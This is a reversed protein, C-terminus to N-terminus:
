ISMVGLLKKFDDDSFNSLSRYAERHCKRYKKHSGCFCLSVRCPEQRKSIFNLGSKILNIDKTNFVEEFYQIWGKLGHAREQHFYGNLRRFTQNYLYPKIEEEIFYILNLRKKCILIEEPTTKICCHGDTEYVHWDYNKPIKNGIEYLYPFSHPYGEMPIIEITYTDYIIGDEGKLSLEGSLGPRGDRNFSTLGPYTKIILQTEKEFLDYGQNDM